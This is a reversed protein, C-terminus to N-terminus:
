QSNGSLEKLRRRAEEVRQPDADYNIVERYLQIAKGREQLIRDYIRAARLRADNSTNPNWQFSREYYWAARRYQRFPRNEYIEGLQYAADDIKDSQPYYTLLQQLLLEARRMNDEYEQGYGRGKFQMARRFLENAEPINHEPKLSPPPVDLELIYARKTIRHFGILEEEVWQQREVDGTRLYHERLQELAQQYQKRAAIVKEVLPLDGQSVNPKVLGTKDQAQILPTLLRSSMAAFFSVVTALFVPWPKWMM